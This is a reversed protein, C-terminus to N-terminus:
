SRRVDFLKVIYKITEGCLISYIHKERVTEGRVIYHPGRTKFFVTPASTVTNNIITKLRTSTTEPATITGEFSYVDVPPLTNSGRMYDM